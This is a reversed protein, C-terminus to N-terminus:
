HVHMPNICIWSIAFSDSVAVLRPVVRFFAPRILLLWNPDLIESALTAIFRQMGEHILILATANPMMVVLRVAEAM